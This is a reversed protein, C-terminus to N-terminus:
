YCDIPHLPTCFLTTLTLVLTPIAVGLNQSPLDQSDHSRWSINNYGIIYLSTLHFCKGFHHSKSISLNTCITHMNTEVQFGDTPM